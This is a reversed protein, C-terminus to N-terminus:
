MAVFAECIERVVQTTPHLRGTAVPRGPLTVDLREQAAARVVQAENIAQSRRALAEELTSKAQNGRTGVERRQALDLQPLGRLVLTLRGRRGLYAVRWGELGEPTGIGGLQELAEQALEEINEARAETMTAAESPLANHFVTMNPWSM